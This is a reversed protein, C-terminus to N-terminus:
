IQKNNFMEIKSHVMEDLEKDTWTGSKLGKFYENKLSPAVRGEEIFSRVGDGLYGRENRFYDVQLIGWIAEICGKDKPNEPESLRINTGLEEMKSEVERM